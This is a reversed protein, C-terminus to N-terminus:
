PGFFFFFPTWNEVVYLPLYIVQPYGTPLGMMEQPPM